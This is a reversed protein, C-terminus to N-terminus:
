DRFGPREGQEENAQEHSVFAFAAIWGAVYLAPLLTTLVALQRRNRSLFFWALGSAATAILPYFWLSVVMTWIWTEEESGPKDFAMISFGSAVLWPLFGLAYIAQTVILTIKAGAPLRAPGPPTPVPPSSTEAM